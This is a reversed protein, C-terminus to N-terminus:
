STKKKVVVDLGNDSPASTNLIVSVYLILITDGKPDGNPNVHTFYKLIKNQNSLMGQKPFGFVLMNNDEDGCIRLSCYILLIGLSIFFHYHM